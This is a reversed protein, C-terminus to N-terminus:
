TPLKRRESVYLLTLKRKGQKLVLQEPTVPVMYNKEKFNLPIFIIKAVPLIPLDM